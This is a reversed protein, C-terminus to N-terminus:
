PKKRLAVAAPDRETIMRCGQKIQAPTLAEAKGGVLGAFGAQTVGDYGKGSELAGRCAALAALTGDVQVTEIGGIPIEVASFARQAPRPTPAPKAQTAAAPAPAPVAAATPPASPAAPRSSFLRPGLMMGGFGLAFFAVVAFIYKPGFGENIASAQINRPM